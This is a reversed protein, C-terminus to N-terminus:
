NNLTAANALNTRWNKEGSRAGDHIRSGANQNRNRSSMRSSGNIDNVVSAVLLSVEGAVNRFGEHM